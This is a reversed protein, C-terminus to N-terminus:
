RVAWSAKLLISREAGSPVPMGSREAANSVVKERDHTGHEFVLSLELEAVFASRLM